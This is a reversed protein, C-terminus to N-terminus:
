SNKLIPLLFNFEKNLKFRTWRRSIVSAAFYPACGGSPQTGCTSLKLTLPEFFKDWYDNVEDATPSPYEKTVIEWVKDCWADYGNDFPTALFKDLSSASM